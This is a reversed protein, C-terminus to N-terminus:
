KKRKQKSLLQQKLIDSRKLNYKSLVLMALAISIACGGFVLAGLANQVKLAQVPASADFKILDLLIGIVLLALSNAINYALTM